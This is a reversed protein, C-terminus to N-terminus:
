GATSICGRGLLPEALVDQSPRNTAQRLQKSPSVCQCLHLLFDALSVENVQTHVSIVWKLWEGVWGTNAGVCAANESCWSQQQQQQQQGQTSTGWPPGQGRAVPGLRCAHLSMVLLSWINPQMLAQCGTMDGGVSGCVEMVGWRSGLVEQPLLPCICRGHCKVAAWSRDSVVCWLVPLYAM